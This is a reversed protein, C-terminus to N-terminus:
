LRIFLSSALSSLGIKKKAPIIDKLMDITTDIFIDIFIYEKNKKIPPICISSNGINLITTEFLSTGITVINNKEM